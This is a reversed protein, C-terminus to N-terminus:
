KDLERKLEYYEKMIRKMFNITLKTKEGIGKPTLVYIYNLQKLSFNLTKAMERQTTGFRNKIKRLVDFHDQSKKM